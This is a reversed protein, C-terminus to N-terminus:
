LFPFILFSELWLLRILVERSPWDLFELRLSFYAL